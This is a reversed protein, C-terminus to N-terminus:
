NESSILLKELDDSLVYGNRRFSFFDNKTLILHDVFNIGIIKCANKMRETIEIDDQSPNNKGSPHNHALIISVANDKIAHIMVDRPHVKVNTVTGISTIHIGIIEQVANLTVTLFIEQRSRAYRKLFLFLDDPQKIKITRRIRKSIIEYTM